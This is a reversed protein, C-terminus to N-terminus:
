EASVILKAIMGAEFHGKTGCVVQYEGPQTPATFTVTQNEGPQLEMKWYINPADEENYKDGVSTGYKMIVLDHVVAGNNSAQVTIEQGAPVNFINPSFQFDTMAVNMETSPAGGGCASLLLSASFIVATIWIYKQMM